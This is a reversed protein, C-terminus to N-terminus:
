ILLFIGNKIDDLKDIDKINVEYIIYNIKFKNLSYIFDKEKNYLIMQIFHYM